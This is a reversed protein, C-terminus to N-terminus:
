SSLPVRPKDPHRRYLIVVRGVLGVDHAETREALEPGAAKRDIPAGEAVRVKILEHDTLAQDVAAVLEDTVGRAGVSVVPSLHHALARLQRRQKGSLVPPRKM